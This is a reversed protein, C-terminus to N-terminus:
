GGEAKRAHAILHAAMLRDEVCIHRHMWDDLFGAVDAAVAEPNQGIADIMRQVGARMGDHYAKHEQLRPYGTARMQIEEEECHADLFDALFELLNAVHQSHVEGRSAEIFDNFEALLRRHQEDIVPHGTAWEPDWAIQGM